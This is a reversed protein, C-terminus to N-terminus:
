NKEKNYPPINIYKKTDVFEVQRGGEVMCLSHLRIYVRIFAVSVSCPSGTSLAM